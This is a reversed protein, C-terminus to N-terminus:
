RKCREEYDKKWFDSSYPREFSDGDPPHFWYNLALHGGREPEYNLECGERSPASRSRVEHFWGAPIYLMEGARLVVEVAAGRQLSEWYLPFRSRLEQEPLSTDVRSFNFPLDSKGGPYSGIGKARDERDSPTLASKLRKPAPGDEAGGAGSAAGAGAGSDSGSGSGTQRGRKSTSLAVRLGQGLFDRERREKDEDGDQEDLSESESSGSGFGEESSAGDEDEDDEDDVSGGEEEDGEGDEEEEDELGEEDGEEGSVGGEGAMEADLVAELARELEEEDEEGEGEGDQEEGMRAAIAQLQEAAQLAAFAQLDSGDARTQLQGHYNIRGNPHVRSIRGVTYLNAAEAPSFLTIRKEGRLLVYLNDHFDHHLGSTSYQATTTHGFWININAVVLNPFLSLKTPFDSSLATLPSSVIEPRDDEDYELDQTTLYTLGEKVSEMFEGFTTRIENGKGYSGGIERKEVKLKCSNCRNILYTDSWERTKHLDSLTDAFAVPTRTAVFKEHFAKSDISESCLRVLSKEQLLLPQGRYECVAPTAM